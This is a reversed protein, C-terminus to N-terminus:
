QETWECVGDHEWGGDLRGFEKELRKRLEPYSKARQQTVLNTVVYGAPVKGSIGRKIKVTWTAM